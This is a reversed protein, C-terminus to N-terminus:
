QYIYFGTFVFEAGSAWAVPSSNTVNNAPPSTSVAKPSLTTGGATLEATMIYPNSSSRGFGYVSSNVAPTFGPPLSFAYQGGGYTTTSGSTVVISFFCLPGLLTYFGVRTGNGIGPNTTAATWAPTYATSVGFDFATADHVIQDGTSHSVGSTGEQGRTITGTTAGTTYATLYVIESVLGTTPSLITLPIYDSTVSPVSPVATGNQYTLASAFTITTGGSTLAAGLSSRLGNFRLRPM